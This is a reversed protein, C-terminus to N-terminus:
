YSLIRYINVPRTLSTPVITETSVRPSNRRMRMAQEQLQRILRLADPDEALLRVYREGLKICAAVSAAALRGFKAWSM